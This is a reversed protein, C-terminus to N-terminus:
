EEDRDLLQRYIAANIQASYGDEATGTIRNSQIELGEIAGNELTTVYAILDDISGDVSMAVLKAPFSQGELELFNEREIDTFNVVVSHQSGLDILMRSIQPDSFGAVAADQSQRFQQRAAAIDPDLRSPDPLTVDSSIALSSAQRDLSRQDLTIQVNWAALVALAAVFIGVFTWRSQGLKKANSWVESSALRQAGGEAKGARKKASEQVLRSTM